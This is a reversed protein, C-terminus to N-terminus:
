VKELGVKLAYGIGKNEGLPLYTVKDLEKLKTIVEANEKPSNDIVFLRNLIPYYKKINDIMEITPNYFVVVGDIKM